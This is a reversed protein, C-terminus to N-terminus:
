LAEVTCLGQVDCRMQEALYNHLQESGIERIADWWIQDVARYNNERPSRKIDWPKEGVFHLVRVGKRDM